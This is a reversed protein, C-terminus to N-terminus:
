PKEAPSEWDHNFAHDETIEEVFEVASLKYTQILPYSGRGMFQALTVTNPTLNVICRSQLRIDGDFSVWWHAEIELQM